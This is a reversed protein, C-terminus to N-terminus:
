GSRPAVQDGIIDTKDGMAQAALPVTSDAAVPQGETTFGPLHFPVGLTVIVLRWVKSGLAGIREFIALQGRKSNKHLVLKSQAGCLQRGTGAIVAVLARCLLLAIARTGHGAAQRATIIGEGPRQTGQLWQSIVQIGVGANALGVARGVHALTKFIGLPSVAIEMHAVRFELGFARGAILQAQFPTVAQLAVLQCGEVCPNVVINGPPNGAFGIQGVLLRDLTRFIQAPDDNITKLAAQFM